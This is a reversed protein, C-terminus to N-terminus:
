FVRAYRRPTQHSHRLSKEVGGIRRVFLVQDPFEKRAAGVADSRNEGIFHKGSTAEIAIFQGNHAPELVARLGNYIETSKSILEQINTQSAIDESKIRETKDNEM